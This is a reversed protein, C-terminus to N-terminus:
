LVGGLSRLGNAFEGYRAQPLEALSSVGFSAILKQLDALKGSDALPGCAAQLQAISYMPASTPAGTVQPPAQTQPQVQPPQQPMPQATYAPAGTYVPAQPAAPVPAPANNYPSGGFQQVATQVAPMAAPAPAEVKYPYENSLLAIVKKASETTVQITMEFTKENM